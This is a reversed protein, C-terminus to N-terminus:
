EPKGSVGPEQSYQSICNLCTDRLFLKWSDHTSFADATSHHNIGEISGHDVDQDVDQNVSLTSWSM